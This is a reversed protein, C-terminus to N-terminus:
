MDCIPPLSVKCLWFHWILTWESSGPHQHIHLLCVCPTDYTIHTVHWMHQIIHKTNMCIQKYEHINMSICSIKIYEHAHMSLWQYENINMIWLYDNINICIWHSENINMSISKYKNINTSISQYELSIWWYKFNENFRIVVM